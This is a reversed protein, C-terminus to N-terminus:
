HAGHVGEYCLWIGMAIVVVASVIPLSRLVRGEGLRSEVFRPVQVVAIGIAVLVVALGASFILVAPLVLWMESTGTTILLVGVADWCPIMGGTIGLLTLGWWSIARPGSANGHHHHDHGGDLHFHDARGALRQLLLWFGMCAVMLGMVLGLGNQIWDRFTQQMNQPLLALVIAILMVAGTHTLTTVCGLYLAHGITGRQGVLYAAVLTKGHGPTLAHAAGFLFALLMTLLFGYDNHLILGLLSFREDHTTKKAPTAGTKAPPVPATEVPTPVEKPMIKLAPVALTISVRRVNEEEAPDLEQLPKKRLIEAAEILRTKELGTENVMSLTLLGPEPAIGHSYYTHDQFDVRVATGPEVHFASEFVFDCRLHGLAEGKEDRLRQNRSVLRLPAISKGNVRVLLRKAYVDAYKETFIAYYKLIDSRYQLPNAEDAYPKMDNLIITTEDAELRYEIRVVLTNPEKAKQLRVVIVRDHSDRPVPHAIVASALGFICCLLLWNLNKMANM